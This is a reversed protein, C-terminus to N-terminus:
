LPYYIQSNQSLSTSYVTGVETITLTLNSGSTINASFVTGINGLMNIYIPIGNSPVLGRTKGNLPDCPANLNYSCSGGNSQVKIRTSAITASLNSSTATAVMTYTAM